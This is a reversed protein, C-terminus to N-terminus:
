VTRSTAWLTDVGVSSWGVSPPRPSMRDPSIRRFVRRIMEDFEDM